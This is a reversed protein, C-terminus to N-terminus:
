TTSSGHNHHHLEPTDNNRAEKIAQKTTENPIIPKPGKIFLEKLKTLIGM